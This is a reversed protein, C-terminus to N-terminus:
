KWVLITGTKAHALVIDHRFKEGRWKARVEILPGAPVVTEKDLFIAGTAFNRAIKFVTWESQAIDSPLALRCVLWGGDRLVNWADIYSVQQGTVAFPGKNLINLVVVEKEFESMDAYSKERGVTKVTLIQVDPRRSQIEFSLEQGEYEPKDPFSIEYYGGEMNNVAQAIQKEAGEFYRGGSEVALIRLSQEGSDKDSESIWTGAPNVLFLLAGSENLFRGITKLRDYSVADSTLYVETEQSEPAGPAAPKTPNETRDLFADSPIGRSYLYVVKSYERFYGLVLNLTMLASTYSGAVRRQDRWLNRAEVDSGQVVGQRTGGLRSRTGWTLYGRDGGPYVDHIGGKDMDSSNTLYDHMKGSIAGKMSKALLKLDRTPGVVYSLGSFPEISLLVYQASKDSQAIVRDAIAKAKALLNYPTFAADFVLFVMKKQAPVQPKSAAAERKDAQTAQFQKKILSFPEVRLGKIHVELDGPTLNLVPAGAMDVAYVPVLWWRVTVEEQIQPQQQALALAGAL